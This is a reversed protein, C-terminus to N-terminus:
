ERNCSPERGCCQVLVPEHCREARDGPHELECAACRDDAPQGEGQDIGSHAIEAARGRLQRNRPHARQQTFVDRCAFAGYGSRLTPHQPAVRREGPSNEM